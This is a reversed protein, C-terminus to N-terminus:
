AALLDMAFLTKKVESELLNELAWSLWGDM